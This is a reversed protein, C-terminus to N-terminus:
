FSFNNFKDLFDKLKTQLVILNNINDSVKDKNIDTTNVIKDMTKIIALDKKLLTKNNSLLNKLGKITFGTEQLLYKIKLINEIDKNYYYRRGGKGTDVKLQPFEKEWYRITHEEVGVEKSALGISRRIDIGKDKM